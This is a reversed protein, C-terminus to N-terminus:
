INKKMYKEERIYFRSVLENTIQSFSQEEAYMEENTFQNLYRDIREDLEKPIKVSTRRMNTTPIHQKKVASYGKSRINHDFFINWMDIVLETFNKYDQNKIRKINAEIYIEEDLYLTKLGM